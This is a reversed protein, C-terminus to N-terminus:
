GTCDCFLYVLFLALILDEPSSMWLIRVKEVQSLFPVLDASSPGIETGILPSM